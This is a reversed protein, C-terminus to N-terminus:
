EAATRKYIYANGLKGTREVAGLSHLINLATQATSLYVGASRKFDKATFNEILDTPIMRDYEASSHIYIEECLASPIRDCRTSGRKKDRSWGNLYRYEEVELLVLCLSLNPHSLFPKIKYLEDFADYIQGTKPSKRRSSVAGSEDIWLLWKTKPIPYVVTVHAVELFVELKKRLKDFGRTQIEIIGNEGVIDAVYGGIRTEHNDTHPEFYRKLVAHLTKEGLTGIGKLDRERYIVADCARSFELTDM